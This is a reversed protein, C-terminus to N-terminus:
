QGGGFYSAISTQTSNLKALEKEMRTFQRYYKDEEDAVKDEWDAVKKEYDSVESKMTKDDFFNGYSRSTSSRTLKSFNNSLEQFYQTFFSIAGKPDKSLMQKLKNTEGSVAEDDPDGAIHLANKENDAADFYGLTEVGFDSLSMKKGNVLYTQLGANRMASAVSNINEDRRLLSDKIKQEWKEIEDDSLADKEEDTLPDYGKATDANYLKDLENILTSYEKFVSKLSNYIADYDTDTSISVPTNEDTVGKATISLGNVNFVNTNSTFTAGNLTIVADEGHIMKASMEDVLTKNKGESILAAKESDSYEYLGLTKLAENNTSTITFDDAAGSKSSFMFLRGSTEDFNATIGAKEALSAFQDITMDGKVSIDVPKGGKTITITAESDFGLDSLKTKSTVKGEVGEALSLKGSTMYAAKALNKVEVTQTGSVASDSAIVSVKSEDSSSTKKQAFSSTYKLNAIKTNFSKIKKNLDTWIDQKWETKIKNNKTKQGKKEYANVLEKVMSDTDLGSNMGTIRIAM